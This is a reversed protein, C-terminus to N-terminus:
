YGIIRKVGGGLLSSGLSLCLALVRGSTWRVGLVQLSIPGAKSATLRRLSAGRHERQRPGVFATTKALIAVMRRQRDALMDRAGAEMNEGEEGTTPWLYVETCVDDAADNVLMALYTFALFLIAEKGLVAANMAEQSYLLEKNHHKIQHSERIEKDNENEFYYLGIM